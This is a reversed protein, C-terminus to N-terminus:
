DDLFYERFKRRIFIKNRISKLTNEFQLADRKNEFSRAFILKWPGKNATFHHHNGNHEILREIPDRETFGFYWKRSTISEIIHVYFM